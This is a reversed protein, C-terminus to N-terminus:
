RNEKDLFTSHELVFDRKMNKEFKKIYANTFEEPTIKFRLLTDTFYMMVDTLEEVLHSRVNVDSMIEDISKKKIIAIVEGIEEVMYLVSDRAHEPELPEWKGQYKKHLETQKNMLDKLTINEM